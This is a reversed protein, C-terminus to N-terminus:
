RKKRKSASTKRAGKAKGPKAAAKAGLVAVAEIEFLAGPRALQTIAVTTSAPPVVTNVFQDRVERFISIHSMDTLYNNIKVVDSFTAGVSKLALRMNEFAQTAQARFDGPGGVLNNDLDLGLQGAFYVTRGPGSVEVVQTYGPPKAITAPNSFRVKTAM